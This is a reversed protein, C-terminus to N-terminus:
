EEPENENDWDYGKDGACWKCISIDKDSAMKNHNYTEGCCRCKFDKTM